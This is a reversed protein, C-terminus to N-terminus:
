GRAGDPPEQHENCAATNNKENSVQVIVWVWQAQSQSVRNTWHKKKTTERTKQQGGMKQSASSWDDVSESTKAQKVKHQQSAVRRDKGYAGHNTVWRERALLAMNRRSNKGTDNAKASCHDRQNTDTIMQSTPSRRGNQIIITLDTIGRVRPTFSAPAQKGIWLLLLGLDQPAAPPTRGVSSAKLM